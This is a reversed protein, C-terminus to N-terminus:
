CDKIPFLKAQINKLECVVTDQEAKNNDLAGLVRRIIQEDIERVEMSVRGQTVGYGDAYSKVHRKRKPPAERILQHDGSLPVPPTTPTLPPSDKPLHPHSIAAAASCMCM